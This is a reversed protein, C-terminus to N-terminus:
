TRLMKEALQQLRTTAQAQQEVPLKGIKGALGRLLNRQQHPPLTQVQVAIADFAAKRKEKPLVGIHRILGPLAREQANIDLTQTQAQLTHFIGADRGSAALARALAPLAVTRGALPLRTISTALATFGSRRASTPLTRLRPALASLVPAQQDAPLKNTLALILKFGDAQHSQSLLPLRKTLAQLERAQREPPLGDARIMDLFFLSLRATAAANDTHAHDQYQHPATPHSAAAPPASRTKRTRQTTALETRLRDGLAQGGLLPLKSDLSKAGPRDVPVPLAIGGSLARAIRAAPLVSHSSIIPM